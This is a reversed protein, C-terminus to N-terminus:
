GWIFISVLVGLLTLTYITALAVTSDDFYNRNGSDNSHSSMIKNKKLLLFINQM